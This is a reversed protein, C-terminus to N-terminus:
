PFLIVYRMGLQTSCFTDSNKANGNQVKSARPKNIAWMLKFHILFFKGGSKFLNGVKDEKAIKKYM